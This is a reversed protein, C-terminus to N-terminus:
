ITFWALIQSKRKNFELTIIDAYYYDKLVEYDSDFKFDCDREIRIDPFKEKLKKFLLKLKKFERRKPFTKLVSQAYDNGITIVGVRQILPGLNGANLRRIDITSALRGRGSFLGESVKLDLILGNYERNAMASQFAGALSYETSYSIEHAVWLDNGYLEGSEHVLKLKAPLVNYYGRFARVSKGSVYMKEPNNKSSRIQKILVEISQETPSQMQSYKPIHVQTCNIQALVVSSLFLSTIILFANFFMNRIFIEQFHNKLIENM